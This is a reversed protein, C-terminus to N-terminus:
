LRKRMEAHLARQSLGELTLIFLQYEKMQKRGRDNHVPVRAPSHMFVVAWHSGGAADRCCYRHHSNEGSSKSRSYLRISPRNSSITAKTFAAVLAATQDIHL